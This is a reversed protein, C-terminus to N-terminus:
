CETYIEVLRRAWKLPKEGPKLRLAVNPRDGPSVLVRGKLEPVTCLRSVRKLDFERLGFNINNGKQAIDTVGCNAAASRLLAVNVLNEVPEPVDGYRDVLEDIMDTAERDERIRAIRRYLDMRQEAAPVYWDPINASLSLDATVEETRVPKEGREELVAEELLKLYLDYGVSMLNGSQQAGLLNGAGRIELDRMAIKYGAGFEAFERVASLRKAAVDSLIKGHRYTLYAYARRSSRGVRGRIQHLQALGMKDADEIILTNVNPIDIGTEIITTCVLVQVEGRVVQDMVDSIEEQSMRGHAVGMRINEDDLMERLRVATQNITEVRNHLYYVQGGRGVERRIADLVVGWDHELVYTQVPQRDQPPEELTSMDRIGSLAMNLTRPIPTASLTLVDVQQFREKLKEKQGVGFRQEEDVVLLGLNKFQLGKALLRHTGILVDILGNAADRLIDKAAKGTQFRTILAIRVPFGEFRRLATQYHQNALVTTPVLIAAQKGELVCKMVARLAVETKGYGVDGCLLRDMPIPKEMDAKVEAVCRLQDETEQYEFKDEFEQQWPDDAHFAYGPQRQRAAYLQILDKALDQTAKKAKSKARTWDTGGLKSLRVTPKGDEGEGGGIYKSVMDLQTAPVYLSDGGAYSLKVYDKEVGDVKMKTMEVFRAIGHKEHVVLDGPVLDTFSQLKQRNTATKSSKGRRKQAPAATGETILAFGPYEFGSSVGGVSLVTQGPQPLQKLDLDLQVKVDRERLLDSLNKAQGRSQCLVVCAYKRHQYHELDSVATELSSGFSPLQKCNLTLLVRADYPRVSTQFSDLYVCPFERGLRRGMEEVTATYRAQSAWLVGSSSLADMDETLRWLYHNAAEVCRSSEAWLVCADAPIYDCGCAFDPYILDMYRDSAPFATGDALRRSDEELTNLLTAYDTADSRKKAKSAKEVQLKRREIDEVLGLVGGPALQPLTEAAPLLEARELRETRRQTLPDFSYVTDVENDWFEVRVPAEAAPSFVDLIDGRLAFQGPGEVQMCRTYGGAALRRTLYDTEYIEGPRLTLAAKELVAPPMTRQFLGEVTAVLLPVRGTQLGRLLRLRQHEWQRSVTANHFVFERGMLLEVPEGTFFELDSQLRKGEQEDPCLLVIPRGTDERLAAALHSRHVTTLGAVAVPSRGADLQATLERFEPLSQLVTTLPKM